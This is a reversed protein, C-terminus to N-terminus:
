PANLPPSLPVIQNVWAIIQLGPVKVKGNEYSAEFHDETDHQHYHGGFTFPGWGVSVGGSIDQEMHREFEDKAFGSLTVDRAAVFGVPLLTMITNNSDLVNGKSISGRPNGKDLFWGGMSFILANFWPRVIQVPCLKMSISINEAETHSQEDKRSYGAEVSISKKLWWMGTKYSAGFGTEISKSKSDIKVNQSDIRLESYLNADSNWNSPLGYSLHWPAGGTILPALQSDKYIKASNELVGRVASNISHDIAAMADEVQSAGQGRWTNWAKDVAAELLPANAQWERQQKTDAMDYSNFANRYGSLATFYSVMNTDYNEKIPTAMINKTENGLFDTITVEQNLYKYAKNYLDLQKQDPEDIANARVVMGYTGDSPTGSPEYDPSVLPVPGILDAFINNAELTGNPNKPTVMNAFDESNLTKSPSVLQIYTTQADFRSKKGGPAYTLLDYIKDYMSQVVNLEIADKM